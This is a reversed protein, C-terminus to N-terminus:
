LYFKFETGMTCNNEIQGENKILIIVGNTPTLAYSGFQFHDDCVPVLCIKKTRM